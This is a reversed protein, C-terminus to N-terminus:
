KKEDIAQDMWFKVKMDEEAVDPKPESTSSKM